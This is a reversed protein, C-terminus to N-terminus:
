IIKFLKKTNGQRRNMEPVLDGKLLSGLFM